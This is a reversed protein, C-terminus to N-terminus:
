NFIQPLLIRLFTMFATAAVLLYFKCGFVHHPQSIFTALRVCTSNKGIREPQYKIHLQSKQVRDLWFKPKAHTSDKPSNWGTTTDYHLEQCTTCGPRGAWLCYWFYNSFGANSFSFILAIGISYSLNTEVDVRINDNNWKSIAAKIAYALVAPPLLSILSNNTDGTIIISKCDLNVHGLTIYISYRCIFIFKSSEPPWICSGGV